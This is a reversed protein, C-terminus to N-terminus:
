CEPELELQRTFPNEPPPEPDPPSLQHDVWNKVKAILGRPPPADIELCSTHFGVTFLAEGDGVAAEMEFYHDPHQDAGQESATDLETKGAIRDLAAQNWPQNPRRTRPTPALGGETGVIVARRYYASPESFNSLADTCMAWDGVFNWTTRIVDAAAERPPRIIMMSGDDFHHTSASDPADPLGFRGVIEEPTYGLSTLSAVEAWVDQLSHPTTRARHRVSAELRERERLQVERANQQERQQRAEQNVQRRRHNLGNAFRDIAQQNSVHRDSLALTFTHLVHSQRITMPSGTMVDIREENVDVEVSLNLLECIRRLDDRFSNPDIVDLVIRRQRTFDAYDESTINGMQRLAQELLRGDQPTLFRLLSDQFQLIVNAM